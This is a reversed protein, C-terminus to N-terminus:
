QVVPRILVELVIRRSWRSSRWRQPQPAVRRGPARFVRGNGGHEWALQGRFDQVMWGYINFHTVGPLSDGGRGGGAMLMQPTHTERLAASSMTKWGSPWGWRTGISPTDAVSRHEAFFAKGLASGFSEVLAVM